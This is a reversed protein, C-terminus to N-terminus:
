FPQPLLYHNIGCPYLLEQPRCLEAPGLAVKTTVRPKVLFSFSGKIVQQELFAGLCCPQKPSLAQFPQQLIHLLTALCMPIASSTLYNPSRQTSHRLPRPRRTDASQWSTPLVAGSSSGTARAGGFASAPAAQWAQSPSWASAPAAQWAKTLTQTILCWPLLVRSICDWVPSIRMPLPPRCASRCLKLLQSFHPCNQTFQTLLSHHPFPAPRDLGATHCAPGGM